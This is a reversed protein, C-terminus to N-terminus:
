KGMYMYIIKSGYGSVYRIIKKLFMSKQELTVKSSPFSPHNLGLELWLKTEPYRSVMRKLPEAVKDLESRAANGGVNRAICQCLLPGLTAMAQSVEGKLGNTSEDNLSM